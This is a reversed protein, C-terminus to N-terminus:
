AARESAFARANLKTHITDSPIPITGTMATGYMERIGLMGGGPTFVSPSTSTIVVATSDRGAVLEHDYGSKMSRRLESVPIVIIGHAAAGLM